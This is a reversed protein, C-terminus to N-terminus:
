IVKGDNETWMIQGFSPFWTSGMTAKNTCEICLDRYVILKSGCTTLYNVLSAARDKPNAFLYSIFTIVKLSLLMEFILECQCTKKRMIILFYFLMVM